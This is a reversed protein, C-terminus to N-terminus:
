IGVAISICCKELLTPLQGATRGVITKGFGLGYNQTKWLWLSMWSAFMFFLSGVTFPTAVGWITLACSGQKCFTDAARNVDALYGVLFLVSGWFNFHAMWVPLEKLRSWPKDLWKNHHGEFAAGAIFCISGFAGTGVYIVNFATLTSMNPKILFLM